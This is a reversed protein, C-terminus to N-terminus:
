GTLEGKRFDNLWKIFEERHVKQYDHSVYGLFKGLQPRQDSKLEMIARATMLYKEIKDTSQGPPLYYHYLEADHHSIGLVVAVRPEPLLNPYSAHISGHNLLVCEGPETFVDVLNDEIIDTVGSFVSPTYPSIRLTPIIKHGGKLFRLGGNLRNTAQLAVWINFTFFRSEDVMTWDQHAKLESAPGCQKVIFNATLIQYNVFHKEIQEKMVERVKKDVAIVLETNDTQSTAHFKKEDAIVEHESKTSEYLQKLEELQNPELFRFKVFGNREFELQLREDKMLPPTSLLSM